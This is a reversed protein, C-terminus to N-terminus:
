LNLLSKLIIEIGLKETPGSLAPGRLSLITSITLFPSSQWGEFVPSALVRSSIVKLTRIGQGYAVLGSLVAVMLLSDSGQFMATLFLVNLREEYHYDADDLRVNRPYEVGCDICRIHVM